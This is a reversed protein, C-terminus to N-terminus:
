AVATRPRRHIRVIMSIKKRLPEPGELSNRGGEREREGYKGREERRQEEGGEERKKEKAPVHTLICPHGM